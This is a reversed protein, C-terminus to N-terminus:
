FCCEKPSDGTELKSESGVIAVDESRDCIRVSFRASEDASGYAM